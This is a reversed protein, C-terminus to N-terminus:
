AACLPSLEWPACWDRMGSEDLELRYSLSRRLRSAHNLDMIPLWDSTRLLETVRRAKVAFNRTRDWVDSGHKSRYSLHYLMEETRLLDTSEIGVRLEM